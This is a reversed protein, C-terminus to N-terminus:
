IDIPENRYFNLLKFALVAQYKAQIQEQLASLYNNKEVLLDVASKMGAAFEAQVQRYSEGAFKVRQVAASYRSRAAVVDQHLSEVTQLLDKRTNREDLRAQETQLKARSVNLRAQKRNSIPISINLGVNEVLRDDMQSFYSGRGKSDHGTSVSASLSVGPLYHGKAIKEGLVSAEVNVQSSKMEPMQELAERYVDELRPIVVIVDEEDLEPFFVEFSEEPELELLQKLQLKSLALDNEAQVVRYRDSSYQAEMQALDSASVSGAKQFERTRALQAESSELTQRDTKLMENAYLVQLYARTVAIEIDNQAVMMDQMMAKEALEQQQVSRSLKGGQYLVMNGNLSYNGTYASSSKMDGNAGAKKQHGWGQTSSFDLSPLRQARGRALEVRTNELAVRTYAVQINHERAHEICARLSWTKGSQAYSEGPMAFLVSASGFFVLMGRKVNKLRSYVDSLFSM